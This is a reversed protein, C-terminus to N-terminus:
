VAKTIAGNVTGWGVINPAKPGTFTCGSLTLVANPDHTIINGGTGTLDNFVENTVTVINGVTANRNGEMAYSIFKPDVSSKPLTM